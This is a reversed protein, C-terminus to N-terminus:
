GKHVKHCIECSSTDRTSDRLSSSSWNLTNLQDDLSLIGVWEDLASLHLSVSTNNVAELTDTRFLAERCEPSSVEGVDDSIEWGLGEVEGELVGDLSHEWLVTSLSIEPHKKRTFM